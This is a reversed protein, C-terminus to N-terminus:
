HENTNEKPIEISSDTLLESLGDHLHESGYLTVLLAAFNSACPDREGREYRMLTDFDIYVGTVRKIASSLEKTNKFGRARRVTRLKKGFFLPDFLETAKAKKRM